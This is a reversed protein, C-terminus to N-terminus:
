YRQMYSDEVLGKNTPVVNLLLNTNHGVTSLYIQQLEALSHIGFGRLVVTDSEAPCFVNRNPSGLGMACDKATSWLSYRPVGSETGVWRLNNQHAHGRCTAPAMQWILLRSTSAWPWAGAMNYSLWTGM